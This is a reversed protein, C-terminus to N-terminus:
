LQRVSGKPTSNGLEFLESIKALSFGLHKKIPLYLSKDIGANTVIRRQVHFLSSLIM